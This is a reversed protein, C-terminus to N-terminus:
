YWKTKPFEKDELICEAHKESERQGLDEPQLHKKLKLKKINLNIGKRKKYKM